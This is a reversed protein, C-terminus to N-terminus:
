QSNIELIDKFHSFHMGEFGVVESRSLGSDEIEQLKMDALLHIREKDMESLNKLILDHKFIEETFTTINGEFDQYDMDYVNKREYFLSKLYPLSKKEKVFEIEPMIEEIKESSFSLNPNNKILTLLNKLSEPSTNKSCFRFAIRKQLM